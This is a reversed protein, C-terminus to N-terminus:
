ERQRTLIPTDELWLSNPADLHEDGTLTLLFPCLEGEGLTALPL